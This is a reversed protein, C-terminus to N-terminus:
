KVKMSYNVPKPSSDEVIFHQSGGGLFMWESRNTPRRAEREIIRGARCLKYSMSYRKRNKKAQRKKRTFRHGYKEFCRALHDLQGISPEIFPMVVGLPLSSADIMDDM